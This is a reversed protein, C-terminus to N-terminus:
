EVSPLEVAKVQEITIADLLQQRVGRLLAVSTEIAQMRAVAALPLGAAIVLERLARDTGAEAKLIAREVVALRDRREKTLTAAPEWRGRDESWSWTIEDTDAPRGASETAVLAGSELDVRWSKSEWAGEIVGFGEPTNAALAEPPVSITQGTLRGTAKSFISFTANM